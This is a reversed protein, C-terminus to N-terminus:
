TYSIKNKDIVCKTASSLQMSPVPLSLRAQFFQFFCLLSISFWFALLSPLFALCHPSFALFGSLWPSPALFGPLSTLSCSLRLALHSFSRPHFCHQSFSNLHAKAPCWIILSVCVERGLVAYPTYHVCYFFSKM